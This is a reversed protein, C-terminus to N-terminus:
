SGPDQLLGMADVLFIPWRRVAEWAGFHLQIKEGKKSYIELLQLQTHAERM